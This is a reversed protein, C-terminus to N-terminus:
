AGQLRRLAALARGTDDEAKLLEAPPPNTCTVRALWAARADREAQVAAAVARLAALEEFSAPAVPVGCAYGTSAAWTHAGGPLLDRGCTPCTTM